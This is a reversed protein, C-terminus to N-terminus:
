LGEPITSKISSEFPNAFEQVPAISPSATLNDTRVGYKKNIPDTDITRYISEARREPTSMGARQETLRAFTEGAVRLYDSFVRNYEKSAMEKARLVSDIAPVTQGFAILKTAKDEGLSKKLSEFANLGDERGLREIAVSLEDTSFGMNPNQQVFEAIGQKTNVKFASSKPNVAPVLESFADLYNEDNKLMDMFGAGKTFLEKGQVFHQAEHLVTKVPNYKDWDPHQRNFLIANSAPDFAALRSSKPDDISFGVKIDEIGPYAKKLTPMDFLEDLTLYDDAPLTKLNVGERMKVEKDSIEYMPKGNIPDVLFGSKGWKTDFEEPKLKLWDSAVEDMRSMADGINVGSQELNSLGGKGIFMETTLSPLMGGESEKKAFAGAQRLGPLLDFFDVGFLGKVINLAM